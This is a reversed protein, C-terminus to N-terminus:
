PRWTSPRTIPRALRPSLRGGVTAEVHASSRDVVHELDYKNMDPDMPAGRAALKKHDESGPLPTLCFFELLDLPLERQIIKIDRVITEPTDAPFGLIYGAYTFCGVAKWALLMLRYEAIRNQKKKAGVLSEPNINELGLFVRRM